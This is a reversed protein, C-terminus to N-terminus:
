NRRNWYSGRSKGCLHLFHHFRPVLNGSLLNAQLFNTPLTSFNNFGDSCFIRFYKYLTISIIIDWVFVKIYITDASFQVSNLIFSHLDYHNRYFDITLIYLLAYFLWAWAVQQHRFYASYCLKNRFYENKKDKVYEYYNKIRWRILGFYTELM